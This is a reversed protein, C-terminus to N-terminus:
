VADAPVEDTKPDPETPASPDPLVVDPDADPVEEVDDQEPETGPLAGLAARFLDSLGM